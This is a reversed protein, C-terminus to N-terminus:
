ATLVMATHYPYTSFDIIFPSRRFRMENPWSFAALLATGSPVLRRPHRHVVQTVRERAVQDKVELKVDDGDAALQAM